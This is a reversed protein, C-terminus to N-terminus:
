CSAPYEPSASKQSCKVYLTTVPKRCYWNDAFFYVTFFIDVYKANDDRFPQLFVIVAIICTQYWENHGRSVFYDKRRKFGAYVWIQLDAQPDAHGQSHLM